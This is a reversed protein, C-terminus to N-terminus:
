REREREREEMYTWEREKGMKEVRKENMGVVNSERERERKREKGFLNM